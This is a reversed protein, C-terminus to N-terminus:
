ARPRENESSNTPLTPVDERLRHLFDEVKGVLELATTKSSELSSKAAAEINLLHPALKEDWEQKVDMSALHLHLKVEDRLMALKQFVANSEDKPENKSNMSSPRELDMGLARVHLHARPMVCRAM